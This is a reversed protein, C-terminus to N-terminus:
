GFLQQPFLFEYGTRLTVFTILTTVGMVAYAKAPLRDADRREATAAGTDEMLLEARLYTAMAGDRGPLTRQLMFAFMSMM